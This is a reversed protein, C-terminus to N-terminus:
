LVGREGYQQRISDRFMAPIIEAYDSGFTGEKRIKELLFMQQETFTVRVTKTGDAM